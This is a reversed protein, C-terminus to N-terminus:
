GGPMAVPEGRQRLLSLARLGDDDAPTWRRAPADARRVRALVDFFGGDAIGASELLLAPLYFSATDERLSVGRATDYLLWPAPQENAVEGDDFGAQEYVRPLAPLHDGYFLLLSRRPRKSLADALRGLARDANELHLLYGRLRQAAAADLGPPLPQAALRVPDANPYADYPGHNEMSIAFLFLPQRARDLQALLHDILADDAVYYGVRPAGDFDEIGLFADFGLNALASARNWFDRLHPHVAIADYGRAGLVRALSEMPRATLRFYPYQVGPFYRMALGTLVEFETRITGGGYTPVWLDGHRSMAALRRFEPLVQAPELGRLRAADFFSESQVVIIDPSEGTSTAATAAPPYRDVLARAQVPDPEPLDFKLDRAYRVLTLPLGITRASKSPSWALFDPDEAAFVTTWPRTDFLMSGALLVSTAFLLGRALGRMRQWRRERLALLVLAGVAVVFLMQMRRPVYRSLLAGGDGLHALLVFDAPLLPTDLQDLKVANAAYLLYLALVVVAACFLPRRTLGLLVLCALLPPLANALLLAPDLPPPAVASSAARCAPDLWAVMAACLLGVVLAYAVLGAALSGRAPARAITGDNGGFVRRVAMTERLATRRGM